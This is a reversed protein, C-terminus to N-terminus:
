CYSNLTIIANSLKSVFVMTVSWLEALPFWYGHFHENWRCRGGSDPLMMLSDWWNWPSVQVFFFSPYCTPLMKLSPSFYPRQAQTNQFLCVLLPNIHDTIQSWGCHPLFVEQPFPHSIQTCWNESLTFLSFSDRTPVPKLFCISLPLCCWLCYYSPQLLPAERVRKRVMWGLGDDTVPTLSATQSCNHQM